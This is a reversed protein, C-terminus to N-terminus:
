FDNKGYLKTATADIAISTPILAAEADGSQMKKIAEVVRKGISM